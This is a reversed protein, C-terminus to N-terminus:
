KKVLFFDLQKRELNTRSIRVKIKDGLLYKKKSQRGVLCFEDELEYYDDEMDRLPIMGEIKNEVLQVYIGWETIGSIVGEFTIGTKDKMFEVQKYKISAREAMVSKKEMDSCHECMDEYKTKKVSKGNDLYLTLLRHVMMDPYRRIPSTFHTYHDFSLGYHGINDTTYIAKSMSRVALQQVLNQENKGSVAKLLNNLSDSMKRPSSVELAYGFKKVFKSFSAMKDKDPEDHVRYVFTKPQKDKKGVFEAVTRNALLMFEEILKNSEKIEKFFVSLPSGKEDILFQAESREFSIAGNKFRKETLKKALNNLILMEKSYDGEGTEIIKQAEEYTFRRNSKIVTRVIRHASVDAQDTMEFVVSYCLKEEDPRLSCIFNSLHEPLMPVVRDVLYISTAREYAENEIDTNEKVYHTVDAIHVGIEHNGNELVRYSLADDFDKANFPDITFTTIERFDERKSFEEQNLGADIKKAQDELDGPFSAPLGFEELIAHMETENEGVNGLVSVIKGTPTDSNTLWDTIEAVVKQGKKAENLEEKPIFIDFHMRLDSTEVIYINRIVKLVGVFRIKARKIVEIVEGEARKGKRGAWLRVKVTDGHLARQTKNSEVFIDQHYEKSIIYASGSNTMDVIGEIITSKPAYLYHGRSTEEIVERQSLIDLVEIVQQRVRSDSIALRKAIQKYNFIKGPNLSIVELVYTELNKNTYNVKEKDNKNKKTKM